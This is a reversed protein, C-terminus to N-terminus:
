RWTQLSHCTTCGRDLTGRGGFRSRAFRATRPSVASFARRPRSTYERLYRQPSVGAYRSVKALAAMSLDMSETSM